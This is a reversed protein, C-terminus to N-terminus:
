MRAAVVSAHHAPSFGVPRWLAPVFADYRGQQAFRV